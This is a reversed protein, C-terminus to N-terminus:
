SDLWHFKRTPPRRVCTLDVVVAYLTLADSDPKWPVGEQSAEFVLFSVVKM